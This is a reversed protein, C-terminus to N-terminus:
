DNSTKEIITLGNNNTLREKINWEKNEELFESIAPWLGIERNGEYSEGIYAYTTTDHFIIYKSVSPAHLRLEEKLQTYNHLTDIFLLETPDIIETLTDGQIFIFETEEKVAEAIDKWKIDIIDYSILKKPRATLFAYTSVVGRVGMETVHDCEAAYKRLVPLHENIDSITNWLELYEKEINM